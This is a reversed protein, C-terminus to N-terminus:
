LAGLTLKLRRQEGDRLVRVAVRDGPKKARVLRLAEDRYRVRQGDVHTVLDHLRLGGAANANQLRAVVLGETGPQFKALFDSQQEWLEELGAWLSGRRVDHGTKLLEVIGDVPAMSVIGVPKGGDHVYASQLGVVRGEGDVWPGGSTGRGVTASVFVVRVYYGQDSLFEFVPAAGAIAGKQLVGHRWLPTGALYVPTTPPPVKPALELHPYPAKRAPLRLVAVDRGRDVGLLTAGLRAGGLLVELRRRGDGVVHAATVARGGPDVLFGSGGLHDDVLIELRAATVRETFDGALVPAALVLWVARSWIASM